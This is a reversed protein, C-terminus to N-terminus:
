RNLRFSALKAQRTIRALSAPTAYVTTETMAVVQAPTAARADIAAKTAKATMARTANVGAIGTADDALFVIGEIIPSASVVNDASQITFNEIGDGTANWRWAKGAEPKQIVLNLVTTSLPQQLSRALYGILQQCVMTLRDFAGEVRKAPFKSNDLFIALQLAAVSREGTVRYTAPLATNFTIQNNAVYEGIAADYTGSFTFDYAGAGNLVPAPVIDAGTVTDTLAVVLDAGGFVTFPVNFATSVGDGNYQFRNTTSQVPM